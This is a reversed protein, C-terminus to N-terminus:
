ICKRCSDSIGAIIDPLRPLIHRRRCKAGPSPPSRFTAQPRRPVSQAYSIDHKVAPQGINISCGVTPPGIPRNSVFM